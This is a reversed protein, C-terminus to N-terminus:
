LITNQDIFKLLYNVEKVITSIQNNRFLHYVNNVFGFAIKKSHFKITLTYETKKAENIM